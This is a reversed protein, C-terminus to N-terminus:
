WSCCFFSRGQSKKSTIEGDRVIKSHIEHIKMVRSTGSNVRLKRELTEELDDIKSSLSESSEVKKTNKKLRLFTM